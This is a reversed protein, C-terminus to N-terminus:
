LSSSLLNFAACNRCVLASESKRVGGAWLEFALSGYPLCSALLAIFAKTRSWRLAPYLGVAAVVYVLFLMGHVRGAIKVPAQSDPMIYSSLGVGIALLTWGVAEAIAAISFLM